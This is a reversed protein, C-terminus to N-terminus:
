LRANIPAPAISRGTAVDPNFEGEPVLRLTFPQLSRGGSRTRMIGELAALDRINSVTWGRATPTASGTLDEMAMTAMATNLTRLILETDCSRLVSQVNPPVQDLRQTAYFQRVGRSRGADKLTGIVDRGSGTGCIHSLEDSFISVSRGLQQWRDCEQDIAAALVYLFMAALRQAVQPSLQGGGMNIIAVQRYQLLARASWAPRDPAPTWLPRASLLDTLRTIPPRLIDDRTRKDMRMYYGFGEVAAQLASTPNSFLAEAGGNSAPSAVPTRAAWDRFWEFWKSQADSDADGGMLARVVQPTPPVRGGVSAVMQPTMSLALRYAAVLAPASSGMIYGAPLSYAMAETIENAGRLPDSWDLLELRPGSESLVDFQLIQEPPVGARLAVNYAREAGDGKSEIWIACHRSFGDSDPAAQARLTLLSGWLGLQFVTKGQGPDGTCLCGQELIDPDLYVPRGYIDVGAMPGGPRLVEAPAAVTTSEQAGRGVQNAPPPMILTAVQEPSLMMWPVAPQELGGVFSRSIYKRWARRPSSGATRRVPAVGRSMRQAFRRNRVPRQWALLLTPVGCGWVVAWITALISLLGQTALAVAAALIGLAALGLPMDSVQVAQAQYSSFPLHELTAMALDAADGGPGSMAAITCAVLANSSLQPDKYATFTNQATQEGALHSRYRNFWARGPAWMHVLIASEERQEAMLAGVAVAAADLPLEGQSGQKGGVWQVQRLWAVRPMRRWQPGAGPVAKAGVALALQTAQNQGHPCAVWLHAGTGDWVRVAHLHGAHRVSSGFWGGGMSHMVAAVGPTATPLPPPKGALPVLEFWPGARLARAPVLCWLAWAAIISSVCVAAFDSM